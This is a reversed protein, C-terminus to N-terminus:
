IESALPECAPMSIYITQNIFSMSKMETVNNGVYATPQKQKETQLNTKSNSVNVFLIHGCHNM